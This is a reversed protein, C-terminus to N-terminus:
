VRHIVPTLPRPRHRPAHDRERGRTTATIVVRERRCHGTRGTAARARRRRLRSRAAGRGDAGVPEFMDAVCRAIEGALAGEEANASLGAGPTDIVTVLPLGLEDALRMGRRAERLARPGMSQQAQNRRDQAVVVCTVGDLRALALLLGADFQGDGTGSLPIVDSAAHRLVERVGPRRPDRTRLVADWTTQATTPLATALSPRPLHPPENRRAFLGIARAALDGFEEVPVVADLIGKSV